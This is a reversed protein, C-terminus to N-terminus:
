AGVVTSTAARLHVNEHAVCGVCDRAEGGAEFVRAHGAERGRLEVEVDHDRRLQVPSRAGGRGRGGSRGVKCGVRVGRDLRTGSSIMAITSWCLGVERTGMERWGRGARAYVCSGGRGKRWRQTQIMGGVAALDMWARDSMMTRKLRYPSSWKLGVVMSEVQASPTLRRETQTSEGAPKAYRRCDGASSHAIRRSASSLRRHTQPYCM